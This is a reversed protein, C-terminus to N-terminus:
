NQMCRRSSCGPPPSYGPDEPHTPRIAAPRGRDVRPFDPSWLVRHQSVALRPSGCSTGCLVSRRHAPFGTVPLPSVTRYSRVLPRPLPAPETFGVPLLTLSSTPQEDGAEAPVEPHVACISPWRVSTPLSVPFLVGSVPWSVWVRGGSRLHTDDVRTACSNPSVSTPSRSTTTPSPSTGCRFRAAARASPPVPLAPAVSRPVPPATEQRANSGGRRRHLTSRVPPAPALGRQDISAAARGGTPGHM